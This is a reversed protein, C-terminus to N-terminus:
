AVILAAQHPADGKADIERSRDNIQGQLVQLPVRDFREAIQRYEDITRNERKEGILECCRLM